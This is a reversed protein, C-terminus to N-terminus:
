RPDSRLPRLTASAPDFWLPSGGRVPRLVAISTNSCIDSLPWLDAALTRVSGSSVDVLDAEGPLEWESTLSRPSRVVLLSSQDNTPGFVRFVGSPPFSITRLLRGAADWICLRPDESHGVFAAFRHDDFFVGWRPPEQPSIGSPVDLTAVPSGDALSRVTWGTLDTSTSAIPSDPPLLKPPELYVREGTGGSVVGYSQRLVCGSLSLLEPASPSTGSLDLRVVPRGRELQAESGPQCDLLVQTNDLFLIWASHHCDPLRQSRLIKGTELQELVMSAVGSRSDWWSSAVRQGDPSLQWSIPNESWQVPTAEPHGGLGDARLDLKFLTVPAAGNWAGPHEAWVLRRSDLDSFALWGGRDDVWPGLALTRGTPLDVLYRFAPVRPPYTHTNDTSVLVVGENLTTIYSRTLDASRWTPQVIADARLLAAGGVILASLLLALSAIRHARDPETRGKAVQLWTVILLAPLLLVAMSAFLISAAGSAGWYFLKGCALAGGGVVAAVSALDMASWRRDGFLALGGVNKALM